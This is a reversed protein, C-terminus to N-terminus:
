VPLSAQQPPYLLRRGDVILFPPTEHPRAPGLGLHVVEWGRVALADAILRRHCRWWQREACMIATSAARAQAELDRLAAAFADTAMYDAYGRFGPHEWGGNPSDDAPKRFGGLDPLHVYAVGAAPMTKALASKDFHPLRRSRPSTRVDALLEVRHADLLLELEGPARTSHGVTAIRVQAREQM